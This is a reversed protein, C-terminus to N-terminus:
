ISVKLMKTICYYNESVIWIQLQGVGHHVEEVTGFVNPIHAIAYQRNDMKERRNRFQNRELYDVSDVDGSLLVLDLSRSHESKM